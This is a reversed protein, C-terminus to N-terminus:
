LFDDLTKQNKAWKPVPADPRRLWSHCVSGGHEVYKHHFQLLSLVTGEQGCDLPDTSTKQCLLRAHLETLLGNAKNMWEPTNLDTVMALPLAWTLTMLSLLLYKKSSITDDYAPDDPFITVTYPEFEDLVASISFRSWALHILQRIEYGQQARGCVCYGPLFLGKKNEGRMAEYAHILCWTELMPYRGSNRQCERWELRLIDNANPITVWVRPDIMYSSPFQSHSLVWKDPTCDPHKRIVITPTNNEGKDYLDFFWRMPSPEQPNEYGRDWGHITFIGQAEDIWHPGQPRNSRVYHSLRDGRSIGDVPATLGAWRPIQPDIALGNFGARLRAEGFNVDELMEMLRADRENNEMLHAYQPEVEVIGRHFEPRVTMYENNRLPGEGMARLNQPAINLNMNYQLPSPFDEDVSYGENEPDDLEDMVSRQRQNNNEESNEM